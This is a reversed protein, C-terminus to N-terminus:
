CSDFFRRRPHEPDTNDMAVTALGAPDELDQYLREAETETGPVGEVMVSWNWLGRLEPRNAFQGDVILTADKPATLWTPEIWTNREPDLQQTVFAAGGGLKFPAILARQLSAYDYGQRYHQEPTDPGLEEQVEKTLGFYRLSARVVAHDREALVEALDDAFAERGAADSGDVAIITRGRAYNHLFETALGRVVETRPTSILKM